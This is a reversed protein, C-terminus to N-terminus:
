MKFNATDLTLFTLNISWYRNRIAFCIRLKRKSLGLSLFASKFKMKQEKHTFVYM